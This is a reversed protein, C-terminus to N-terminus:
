RAQPTRGKALQHPIRLAGAALHGGPSRSAPGPSTGPVPPVPHAPGPDPQQHPAEAALDQDFGVLVSLEATIEDPLELSRLTHPDGVAGRPDPPVVGRWTMPEVPPVLWALDPPWRDGQLVASFMVPYDM